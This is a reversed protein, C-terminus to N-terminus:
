KSDETHILGRGARWLPVFTGTRRFRREPIIGGHELEQELSAGIRHPQEIRLRAHKHIAVRSRDLEHARAGLFRKQPRPRFVERWQKLGVASRAAFLGGLDYGQDFLATTVPKFPY